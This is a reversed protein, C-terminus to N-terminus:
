LLYQVISVHGYQSFPATEGNRDMANLNAGHAVLSHVVDVHGRRSAAHLPTTGNHKTLAIDAGYLLFSTVLHGHGQESAIFLPTAGQRNTANIVSKATTLRRVAMLHLRIAYLRSSNKSKSHMLPWTAWCEKWKALLNLGASCRSSPSYHKNHLIYQKIRLTM